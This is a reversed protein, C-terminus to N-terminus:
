KKRWDGGDLDLVDDNLRATSTSGDNYNLSITNGNEQFTGSNSNGDPYMVMFRGSRMFTIKVEGMPGQNAWSGYISVVEKIEKNEVQETETDQTEEKESKSCSTFGFLFVSILITNLFLIKINKM